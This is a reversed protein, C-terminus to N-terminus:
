LTVVEEVPVNGVIPMRRLRKVLSNFRKGPGRDSGEFQGRSWVVLAQRVMPYDTVSVGCTVTVRYPEFATPWGDAPPRVRWTPVWSGSAFVDGYGTVATLRGALRDEDTAYREISDLSILGRIIGLVLNGDPDIVNQNIAVQVSTDLLPLGTESALFDVGGEIIGLFRDDDDSYDLPVKFEQKFANLSLWETATTPM